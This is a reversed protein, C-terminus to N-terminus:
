RAQDHDRNTQTEQDQEFDVADSESQCSGSTISEFPDFDEDLDVGDEWMKTWNM